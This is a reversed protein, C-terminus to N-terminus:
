KRLGHIVGHKNFMIFSSFSDIGELNREIINSHVTQILHGSKMPIKQSQNSKHKM